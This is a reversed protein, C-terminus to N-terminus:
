HENTDHRSDDSGNFDGSSQHPRSDSLDGSSRNARHDDSDCPWTHIATLDGPFAHFSQLHPSLHHRLGGAWDSIFAGAGTVKYDRNLDELM